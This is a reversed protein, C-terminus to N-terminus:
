TRSTQTIRAHCAMAFIAASFRKIHTVSLARTVSYEPPDEYGALYGHSALGMHREAVAGMSAQKEVIREPPSPRKGIVTM